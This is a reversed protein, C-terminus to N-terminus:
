NARKRISQLQQWTLDYVPLVKSSAEATQWLHNALASECVTDWLSDQPPFFRGTAVEVLQRVYPTVDVACYRTEGAPTQVEFARRVRWM